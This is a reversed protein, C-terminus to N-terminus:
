ESIALEKVGAVLKAGPSVYGIAEPDGAVFELVQADSKLETPPVDRGSFIMRQWFSKIASVSKRHIERTFADRVESQEDQDVPIVGLGNDWRKAKKLFMKSLLARDVSATSNEAHVVVVFAPKEQAGVSHDGPLISIALVLLSLLFVKNM